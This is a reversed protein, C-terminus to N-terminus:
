KKSRTKPLTLADEAKKLKEMMKPFWSIGLNESLGQVFVLEGLIDMVENGWAKIKKSQIKTPTM